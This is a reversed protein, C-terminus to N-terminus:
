DEENDNDYFTYSRSEKNDNTLIWQVPCNQLWDFFSDKM